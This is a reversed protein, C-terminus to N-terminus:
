FLITATLFVRADQEVNRGTQVPEAYLNFIMPLLAKKDVYAEVTSASLGVILKRSIRETKPMVQGDITDSQAQLYRYGVYPKIGGGPSLALDTEFYYYDGRNFAGFEHITPFESKFFVPNKKDLVFVGRDYPLDFVYGGSASWTLWDAPTIDAILGLGAIYSGSGYAIDLLNKENDPTGTPISVFGTLASKILSENLFRYKGGVVVDGIGPAGDWPSIKKYGLEQHLFNQVMGIPTTSALILDDIGASIAPATFGMNIGFSVDGRAKIFYPVGVGVTLKDTVGYQYSLAAGYVDARADLFTNAHDLIPFPLPGTKQLLLANAMATIDVHNLAYGLERNDGGNDFERTIGDQFYGLNISSRGKPLVQTNEAFTPLTIFLAATLAVLGFISRKPGKM